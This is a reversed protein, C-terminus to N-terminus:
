YEMEAPVQQILQRLCVNSEHEHSLQRGMAIYGRQLQQCQLVNSVYQHGLQCVVAIHGRQLISQIQVTPEHEDGAVRGLRGDRGDGRRRLERRPQLVGRRHSRRRSLPGGRNEARRQRSVCMRHRYRTCPQRGRRQDRRTHLTCMSRARRARSRPVHQLGM